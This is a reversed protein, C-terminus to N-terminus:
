VQIGRAASYVAIERIISSRRATNLYNWGWNFWSVCACPTTHPYKERRTHKNKEKKKETVLTYRVCTTLVRTGKHAPPCGKKKAASGVLHIIRSLHSPSLFLSRESRCKCAESMLPIYTPIFHDHSYVHVRSSRHAAKKEYSIQFDIFNPSQKLM